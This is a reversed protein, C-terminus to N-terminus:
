GHESVLKEFIWKDPMRILKEAEDCEKLKQCTGNFKIRGSNFIIVEDFNDFDDSIQSIVIIGVDREKKLRLLLRWLERRAWPDLHSTPEDFIIWEPEMVLVSAICVLQKQGGSLKHIPTKLLQSINLEKATKEIRDHMVMPSLALNELGFAIDEEVTTGVIQNDPNQFIIGVKCHLDADESSTDIGCVEIKGEM